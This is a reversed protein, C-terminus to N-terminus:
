VAPISTLSDRIFWEFFESAYRLTGNGCWMVGRYLGETQFDFSEWVYQTVGGVEDPISAAGAGIGAPTDGDLRVIEFDATYESLDLVVNSADKFTILLPAPIEGIVYPGILKQQVFTESAINTM